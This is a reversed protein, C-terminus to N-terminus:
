LHGDPESRGDHFAPHDAEGEGSSAARWQVGAEADFAGGALADRGLMQAMAVGGLGGGIQWLFGRRNLDHKGSPVSEGM